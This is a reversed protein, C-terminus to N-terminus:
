VGAGAPQPTVAPATIFSYPPWPGSLLLRLGPCRRRADEFSTCLHEAGESKVLYAARVALRPTPLIATRHDLAHRGIVAHLEDALARAREQQLSERRYEECRARLYQAGTVPLESTLDPAKREESIAHEWLAVLGFEHADGLRALDSVLASYRASVERKVADTGALVTGFRVPLAPGADRLAEVVAEHRLVQDVTSRLEGFALASTIAALDGCPIAV